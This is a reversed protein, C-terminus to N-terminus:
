GWPAHWRHLCELLAGEEDRGPIWGKWGCAGTSGPVDGGVVSLSRTAKTGPQVEM